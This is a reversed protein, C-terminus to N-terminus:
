QACGGMTGMAAVMMTGMMSGMMTGKMTGKMTGTGMRANVIGDLRISRWPIVIGLM